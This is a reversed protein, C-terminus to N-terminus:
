SNRSPNGDSSVRFLSLFEIEHDGTEIM